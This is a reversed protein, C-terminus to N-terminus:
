YGLKGIQRRSCNRAHRIGVFVNTDHDGVDGAQQPRLEIAADAPEPDGPRLPQHQGTQVPMRAGRKRFKGFHHLHFLRGGAAHDVPQHGIAPHRAPGLAVVAADLADIRVGSASRTCLRMQRTASAVTSSARVPREACSLLCSIANNCRTLFVRTEATSAAGAPLATTAPRRGAERPARPWLPLGRWSCAGAAM